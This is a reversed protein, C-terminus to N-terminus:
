LQNNNEYKEKQREDKNWIRSYKHKCYCEFGIIEKGCYRCRYIVNETQM